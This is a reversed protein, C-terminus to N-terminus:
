SQIKRQKLRLEFIDINLYYKIYRNNFRDSDYHFLHILVQELNLHISQQTTKMMKESNM